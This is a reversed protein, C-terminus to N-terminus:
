KVSMVVKFINIMFEHVYERLIYVHQNRKRTCKGTSIKLAHICCFVKSFWKNSVTSYIVCQPVLLHEYYEVRPVLLADVTYLTVRRNASGNIFHSVM